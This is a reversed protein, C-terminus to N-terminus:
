GKISGIMVGKVFYRQLFPYSFLIPVTAIIVTSYRVLMRYMMDEAPVAPLIAAEEQIILIERLILQLPYLGRDRLFIVAPLWSNWHGVGYFLVMVAIVAKSLPLIIRFLVTFDNAGDMKASEELSDPVAAFGTRMVILNWASVTNHIVMIIRTNLLGLGRVILFLPIIGGSFFMTFVIMFMIPNRFLVRKRSLSYAALSTVSINITTGVGVYFLTNAYGSMIGPNRFTLRYGELTFGLPRLLIGQHRMLANPDSFSAFLIHIMPYVCMISFVSLLFVNFYGFAREAPATKIAM